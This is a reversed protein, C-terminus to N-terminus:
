LQNGVRLNRSITRAIIYGIPITYLPLTFAYLMLFPLMTMVQVDSFSQWVLPLLFRYLPYLVFPAIATRILAGLATYCTITKVGFNKSQPARRKLFMSALYIGLLMSLTLALVFPRGISTAVGVPFLITEAALNLVAVSVGVKVGFLLFAAVIPIESFRYFVFPLYGSPVRVPDLAVTLAAFIIILSIEKANVLV